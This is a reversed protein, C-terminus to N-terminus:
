CPKQFLPFAFECCPAAASAAISRRLPAAPNRFSSTNDVLNSTLLTCGHIMRYLFNYSLSKSSFFLPNPFCTFKGFVGAGRAVMPARGCPLAVLGGLNRPLLPRLTIAASGALTVSHPAVPVPRLRRWLASM